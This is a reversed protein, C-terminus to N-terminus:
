INSINQSASAGTPVYKRMNFDVTSDVSVKKKQYEEDFLHTTMGRGINEIINRVKPDTESHVRNDPVPGLVVKNKNTIKYYKLPKTASNGGRLMKMALGWEKDSKKYNGTEIIIDNIIQLDAASQKFQDVNPKYLGDFYIKTAPSDLVPNFEMHQYRNRRMKERMEGVTVGNKKSVLKVNRPLEGSLTYKESPTNGEITRRDEKNLFKPTIRRQYIQEKVLNGRYQPYPPTKYCKSHSESM